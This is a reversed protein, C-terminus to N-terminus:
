RDAADMDRLHVSFKDGILPGERPDAVCATVIKRGVAEVFKVGDLVV